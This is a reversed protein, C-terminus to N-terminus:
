VQRACVEGESSWGNARSGDGDGYGYGYGSEDQVREWRRHCETSCLLLGTGEGEEREGMVNM